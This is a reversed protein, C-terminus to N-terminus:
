RSANEGAIYFYGVRNNPPSGWWLRGQADRFFEKMANETYPVPYETVKGTAPDFVGVVDMDHSSYWVRDRRDIGMAYPTPLPGPLQFEEFTETVPDFRALKGASYEGIWLIGQSDIEVRRLYSKTPLEWMTVQDTQADVKGIHSPPNNATFWANDAADIAVDYTSRAEKYYTFQETKPDFKTFPYGSSWVNGMSDVRSTHKSGTILVKPRGPEYDAQYETITETRPDWRGLKNSGQEAMWISGDPAPVASHIAATGKHPASFEQMEGTAPDLRAIRNAAGFEPIWVKGDQDPTASFPFSSPKTMQYDVYVIKLGEDTFPRVTEQYGPLETPSKPVTADVGFSENLFPLLDAVMDETLREGLNFHMATRMYRVMAQFGEPSRPRAAMRSQFGHCILCRDNLVTKGKSEPLLTLMQHNSLDSWKVMGKGLTFDQSAGRATAEVEVAPAAAYGASESWVRYGGPALSDFRYRGQSDSLVSVTIRSRSASRARVFAGRVAAGDPGKVTGSIMGQAAGYSVAACLVLLLQISRSLTRM